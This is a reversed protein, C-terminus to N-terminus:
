CMHDCSTAIPVSSSKANSQAYMAYSQRKSSPCVVQYTTFQFLVYEQTKSMASSESFFSMEIMNMYAHTEQRSHLICVV